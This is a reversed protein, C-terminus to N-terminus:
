SKGRHREAYSRWVGRFKDLLSNLDSLDAQVEEDHEDAKPIKIEKSERTINIMEGNHILFGELGLPKMSIRGFGRTKFGGVRILGKNVLNIVEAILGIGYNPVNTFTIDNHFVAGPDLFEVFYLARERVAGSKRDIAIGTKVSRSPTGEPYADSFNVHSRFTASGFIKCCLCYRSLIERVKDMEGARMARQLENDYSNKCEEGMMCTKVGSSRAISESASRFVGKITSGPIYPVDEGDKKILLVPLDVVSMKAVNKGAGIRLPSEAVIEFSFKLVRNLTEHTYWM